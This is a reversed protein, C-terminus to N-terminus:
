YYIILPYDDRMDLTLNNNGYDLWVEMLPASSSLELEVIGLNVLDSISQNYESKNLTLKIKTLRQTGNNHNIFESGAKFGSASPILFLLPVNQFSCNESILISDGESIYPPSYKFHKFPPKNLIKSDNNNHYRLGIGFPSAGSQRWNARESFKMKKIMQDNTVIENTNWISEIYANEFFFCNSATGQGSHVPSKGINFGASNLTSKFNNGGFETFIFVHDLVIM